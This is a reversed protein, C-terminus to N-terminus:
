PEPKNEKINVIVMILIKNWSAVSVFVFNITAKCFPLLANTKIKKIGIKKKKAFKAIAM